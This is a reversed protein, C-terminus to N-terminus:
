LKKYEAIKNIYWDAHYSKNKTENNRKILYDIYDQGLEQYFGVWNGSKHINCMYCQLRLNELSYRMETSCLSSAIIHGTHPVATLNGCTFCYYEGECNFRSRIIRRCEVWLDKKLKSIPTLKPKKIRTRKIKPTVARKWTKYLSSQKGETIDGWTGLGIGIVKSRKLAQKAKVEELTPKKFGKKAKLQTKKM